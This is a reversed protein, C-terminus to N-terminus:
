DGGLIDDLKQSKEQAEAEDDEPKEEADANESDEGEATEETPEPEPPALIAELIGLENTLGSGKLIERWLNHLSAANEKLSPAFDPGAKQLAKTQKELEKEDLDSEQLDAMAQEYAAKAEQSRKIIEFIVDADISPQEKLGESLYLAAALTEVIRMDVQYYDSGAYGHQHPENGEGKFFLTTFTNLRVSKIKAIAILTPDM